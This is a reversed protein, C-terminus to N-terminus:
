FEQFMLERHGNEVSEGTEFLVQQIKLMALRRAREPMKVLTSSVFKAFLEYETEEKSLAQTIVNASQQLANMIGESPLDLVESKRKQGKVRM